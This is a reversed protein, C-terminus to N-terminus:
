TDSLMKYLFSSTSVVANRVCYAFSFLLMYLFAACLFTTYCGTIKYPSANHSQNVHVYPIDSENVQTEKSIVEVTCNVTQCLQTITSQFTDVYNETDKLTTYSYPEENLPECVANSLKDNSLNGCYLNLSIVDGTSTTQSGIDQGKESCAFSEETLETQCEADKVETCSNQLEGSMLINPKAVTPSAIGAVEPKTNGDSVQELVNKSLHQVQCLNELKCKKVNINQLELPSIEESLVDKSSNTAKNGALLVM